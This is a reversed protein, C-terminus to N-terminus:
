KANVIAIIQEAVFETDEKSLNTSCPINLIDRYYEYAREIEFSQHKIYPTQQHVLKWIPRCQIGKEILRHLLEERDIGCRTRDVLLPYFWHNTRGESFSLIELGDVCAFKDKYIKYNRRKIRIFSELKDIQSVGLAAQLNLMRYNYGIEDHVFYLTDNKAQVSLYRIHELIEKNRSVAMGGGGTTIIKNANFSYAGADGVTGAFRGKYKGSEYYSGLAETADEVVKLNYMEALSMIQEMNCLNGFVHVPVIAAIRRGSKKNILSQGNFDCSEICFRTLKDVDLCFNEDCDMFVPYAGLYTVPNVAAIFTLTPVIVEDGPQVGLVKLALHLAATGSQVGVAGSVGVYHAVKQEFESIFRGGTSVWGSEICEKLNDIVEIDLNPSSLPIEKNM